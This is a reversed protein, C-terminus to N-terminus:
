LGGFRFNDVSLSSSELNRAQRGSMKAKSAQELKSENLRLILQANSHPGKGRRSGGGGQFQCKPRGSRGEERLVPATYSSYSPSTSSNLRQRAQNM